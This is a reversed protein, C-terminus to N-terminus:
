RDQLSRANLILFRHIYVVLTVFSLVIIAWLYIIAFQFQFFIFLIAFYYLLTTLKGMMNAPVTRKGRFHFFASGVIMGADRLFIAGAASWPILHSELLSLIVVIMLCKDALPDLMRGLETVQGRTRALYGDLVDTLGALVIIFFALELHGKAFIWLYVPLLFFRLLTLLNPINM